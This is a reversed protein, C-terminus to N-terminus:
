PLPRTASVSHLTGNSEALVLDAAVATVPDAGCLFHPSFTFTRPTGAAIFVTDFQSTLQPQPFTIMPGGLLTGNILRFTAEHLNVGITSVIVVDFSPAVQPPVACGFSVFPSSPAPAVPPMISASFVASLSPGALIKTPTDGCASAAVAAAAAVFVFM